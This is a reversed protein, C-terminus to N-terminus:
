DAPGGTETPEVANEEAPEESQYASHYRALKNQNDRGGTQKGCLKHLMLNAEFSSNPLLTHGRGCIVTGDSLVTRTEPNGDASKWRETTVPGTYALPELLPQPSLKADPLADQTWNAPLENVPPTAAPRDSQRISALLQRKITTTNLVPPQTVAPEGPERQEIDDARVTPSAQSPAAALPEPAPGPEPDPELEPEPMRPITVPIVPAPQATVANALSIRLLPPNDPLAPSDSFRLELGTLFFVHALLSALLAAVVVLDRSQFLASRRM